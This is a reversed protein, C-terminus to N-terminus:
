RFNLFNSVSLTPDPMKFEFDSKSFKRNNLSSQNISINLVLKFYHFSCTAECCGLATYYNEDVDTWMGEKRAINILEDSSLLSKNVQYKSLSRNYIFDAINREESTLSRFMFIDDDISVIKKGWMIGQIFNEIKDEDIM